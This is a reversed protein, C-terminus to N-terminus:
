GGSSSPFASRSGPDPRAGPGPGITPPAARALAAGFSLLFLGAAGAAVLAGALLGAAGARPALAPLVLLATGLARALLALTAAAVLTGRGRRARPFLLAAAAGWAGLAAAALARYPGTWRALLFAVEDPVNGYWTPLFLSWGLYAWLLLFGFTLNALDRRAEPGCARRGEAALAALALGSVFAGVVEAAAVAPLAPWPGPEIALAAVWLSTGATFGALAAAAAGRLRSPDAEGRALAVYAAGSGLALLAAAVLGAALAAGGLPDRVALAAGLGVALLALLAAAPLFFGAGAEAVPLLPGAWRGRALRVAASVAVAGAAAGALLLFSAALAALAADGRGSAAAGALAAAGAAALAAAARAVPRGLVAAARDLASTV